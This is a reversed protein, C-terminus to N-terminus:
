KPLFERGVIAELVSSKGSSQSGVVVISPLTLGAEEGISLLISRIEILKRTLLMLDGTADEGGGAYVEDVLEPAAVAVAAAVLPAPRPQRPPPPPNKQSNGHGSDSAGPESDASAPALNQKLSDLTASLGLATDAWTQSASQALSAYTDSASTSVSQFTDSATTSISDYAQGLSENIESLRSVASSKFGEFLVVRVRAGTLLADM